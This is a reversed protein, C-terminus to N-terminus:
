SNYKTATPVVIPTIKLVNVLLRFDTALLTPPPSLVRPLLIAPIISRRMPKIAPKM